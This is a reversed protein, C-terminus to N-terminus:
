LRGLLWTWAPLTLLSLLIGYGVMAAALTPALRHSIALAAATSAALALGIGFFPVYLRPHRLADVFYEFDQCIFPENLTRSKVNSSQVVVLQLALLGGTAFWPRQVALLCLAFLLLWSGGHLCLTAPPRRWPPRVHPRLLGELAVSAGLGALPPLWLAASM